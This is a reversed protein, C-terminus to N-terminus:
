NIKVLAGKVQAMGSGELNALAGGKLTATASGEATLQLGKLTLPGTAQVSGKGGSLAFQASAKADLTASDLCLSRTKLSVGSPTLSLTSGGVELTIESDASLVIKKSRIRAEDAADLAYRTEVTERAAGKVLTTLDGGITRTAADAVTLEFDKAARLALLEADRADDFELANPNGSLKTCLGSKTGDAQAWPATNRGNYVAGIIVPADPDGNLFSVLVEHGVRPTFRAGYGAGAFPAAVRIWCTTEAVADSPDWFFKAKVRGEADCAPAGTRDGVVVANHIGALRPKPRPEPAPPASVPAAEFVAAPRGSGEVRYAVATIVYEGHLEPDAAATVALTRGLTLGPHDTRGSLRRAQAGLRQAAIRAAAAISGSPAPRHAADTLAPWPGDAGTRIPGGASQRAREVDYATLTAKEAAPRRALVLETAEHLTPDATARDSLRAPGEPGAPYPKAADHLVLAEADAGDHVYLAINDEALIRRCFDLDTEEYQVCIARSPPKATIKLTPVTLRNQALIAKFIDVSSQRQFIQSRRSYGLLALSPRVTLRVRGGSSLADAASAVREAEVVVGAFARPEATNRNEPASLTIRAPKGLLADLPTDVLPIEVQYAPTECLRETAEFRSVPRAPAGDISLAAAATSAM